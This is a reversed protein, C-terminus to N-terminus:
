RRAALRHALSAEARADEAARARAVRARRERRVARGRAQGDDHEQRAPPHRGRLEHLRERVARADERELRVEVAAHGDHLLERASAEDVERVRHVREPDLPLLRHRDLDDLLEVPLRGVPDDERAAVEAVGRREVGAELHHALEAEDRAERPEAHRLGLVRVRHVAGERGPLVRDIGITASVVSALAIWIPLGTLAGRAM